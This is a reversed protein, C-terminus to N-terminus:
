SGKCKSQRVHLARDADLDAARRGITTHLLRAFDHPGEHVFVAAVTLDGPDTGTAIARSGPGVGQLIRVNGVNGASRSARDRRQYYGVGSGSCEANCATRDCRDDRAAIDDPQVELFPYTELFSWKKVRRCHEGDFMGCRPHNWLAVTSNTVDRRRGCIAWEADGRFKSAGHSYFRGSLHLWPLIGARPNFVAFSFEASAMANKTSAILRCSFGAGMM